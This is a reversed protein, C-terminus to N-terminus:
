RAIAGNSIIMITINMYGLLCAEPASPGQYTRHMRPCRRTRWSQQWTSPGPGMTPDKCHNAIAIRQCVVFKTVFVGGVMMVTDVTVLTGEMAANECSDSWSKPLQDQCPNSHRDIDAGVTSTQQSVM